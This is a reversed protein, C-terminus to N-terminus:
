YGVEEPMGGDFPASFSTGDTSVQISTKVPDESDASWRVRDWSKFHPIESKNFVLTIYGSDYYQGSARKALMVLGPDTTLDVNSSAVMRDQWQSQAKVRLSQWGDLLDRAVDALDWGDWVKGYQAPTINTELLIEETYAEVTVVQGLTRGVIKGSVKLKDGKYIQIYSAIEAYQTKNPKARTPKGQVVFPQSPAFFGYLAHDPTIHEDITERPIYISVDTAENIRRTYHWRVGPLIAVLKRNKDLIRAQYM